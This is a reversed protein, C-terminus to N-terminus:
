YSWKGGPKRGPQGRWRKTTRYSLFASVSFCRWPPLSDQVFIPLPIEEKIHSNVGTYFCSLLYRRIYVHRGGFFMCIRRCFSITSFCFYFLLSFCKSTIFIYILRVFFSDTSAIKAGSWHSVLQSHVLCSHMWMVAIIVSKLTSAAVLLISALM